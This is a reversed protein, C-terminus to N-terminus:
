IMMRIFCLFTTEGQKTNKDGQLAMTRKIETEM